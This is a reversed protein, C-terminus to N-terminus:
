LCKGFRSSCTRRAQIREQAAREYTMSQSVTNPDGSGNAFPLVAISNIAQDTTQCRRGLRTIGLAGLALVVVAIAALFSRRNRMQPM